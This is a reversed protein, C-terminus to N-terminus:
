LDSYPTPHLLYITIKSVNNQYEAMGSLKKWQADNRFTDWHADRSAKNTFSTMYMLNPMRSGMLVEGYFVANFGLRKFLGVEGGENFMRVKNRYINETYGEYSRLEYIRDAVPGDLAPKELKPMDTFAQLLISEQRVFPPATYPADLYVKGAAAYQKDGALTKSLAEIQALSRFPILVYIRKGAFATDEAIPKFVGVRSIGARHLAPVWADKLFADVQAEQQASNIQYITIQYFERPTAGQTMTPIWLCVFVLMVTFCKM